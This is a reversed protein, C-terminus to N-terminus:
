FSNQRPRAPLQYNKNEVMSSLVPRRSNIVKKLVINKPIKIRLCDAYSKLMGRLSMFTWKTSKKM